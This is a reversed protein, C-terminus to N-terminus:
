AHLHCKKYLWTHSCTEFWLISIKHTNYIYKSVYFILDITSDNIMSKNSWLECYWSSLKLGPSCSWLQSIRSRDAMGNLKLLQSINGRRFQYYNPPTFKRWFIMPICKPTKYFHMFGMAKQIMKASIVIMYNHGNQAWTLRKFKLLYFSIM